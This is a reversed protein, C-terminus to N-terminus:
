PLISPSAQSPRRRPQLTADAVPPPAHSSKRTGTEEYTPLAGMRRRRSLYYATFPIMIFRGFVLFGRPRSEEEIEKAIEEDTQKEEKDDEDPQKKKGTDPPYQM